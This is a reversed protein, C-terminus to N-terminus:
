PSELLKCTIGNYLDSMAAAQNALPMLATAWVELAAGPLGLDSNLVTL